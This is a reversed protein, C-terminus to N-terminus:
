DPRDLGHWVASGDARYRFRLGATYSDSDTASIDLTVTTDNTASQGGNLRVYKIVPKISAPAAETSFSWSFIDVLRNGDVDLIGSTATVTFTTGYALASSPNFAITDNSVSFSGPVNENDANKVTFSSGNVSSSEINKTFSLLINDIDVPISVDGNDPYMSVISPPTVVIEVEEEITDVLNNPVDRLLLM